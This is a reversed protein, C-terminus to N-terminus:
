FLSGCFYATSDTYQILVSDQESNKIRYTRINCMVIAFTFLFDLVVLFSFTNIDKAWSVGRMKRGEDKARGGYWLRHLTPAFDTFTRNIMPAEALKSLLSLPLDIFSFGIQKEKCM